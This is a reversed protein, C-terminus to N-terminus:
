VPRAGHRSRFQTSAGTSRSTALVADPPIVV